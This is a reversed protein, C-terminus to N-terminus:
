ASISRAAGHMAAAAVSGVGRLASASVLAHLRGVAREDVVRSLRPAAYFTYPL